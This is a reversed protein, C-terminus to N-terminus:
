KNIENTKLVTSLFMESICWPPWGESPLFGPPAFGRADAPQQARKCKQDSPFDVHAPSSSEAVAHTLVAQDSRQALTSYRMSGCLVEEDM